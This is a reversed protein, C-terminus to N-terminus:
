AVACASSKRAFGTGGLGRRLSCHEFGPINQVLFRLFFLYCTVLCTVNCRTYRFQDRVLLYRLPQLVWNDLKHVSKDDARALNRVPTDYRSLISRCKQRHPM